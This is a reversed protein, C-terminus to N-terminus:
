GVLSAVSTALFQELPYQEGDPCLWFVGHHHNRATDFNFIFSNIKSTLLGDVANDLFTANQFALFGMSEKREEPEFGIHIFLGHSLFCDLRAVM